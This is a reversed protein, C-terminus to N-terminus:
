ALIGRAVILITFYSGSYQFYATNLLSVRNIYFPYHSYKHFPLNYDLRKEIGLRSLSLESHLPFGLHHGGGSEVRGHKSTWM